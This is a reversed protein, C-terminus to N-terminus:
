QCVYLTPTDIGPAGGGTITISSGVSTYNKTYYNYWASISSAAGGVSAGYFGQTHYPDTGFWTNGDGGYIKGPTYWSIRSVTLPAGGGTEVFLNPEGIWGGGAAPFYYYTVSGWGSVVMGCAAGAGAIFDQINTTNKAFLGIGSGHGCAYGACFGTARGRIKVYAPGSYSTKTYLYGGASTTRYYSWSLSGTIYTGGGYFVLIEGGQLPVVAGDTTYARCTSIGSVIGGSSIIPTDNLTGPTSVPAAFTISSLLLAAVGFKGKM